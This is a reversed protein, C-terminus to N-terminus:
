GLLARAIGLQLYPSISKVCAGRRVAIAHEDETLFAEDHSLRFAVKVTALELLVRTARQFRKGLRHWLVDDGVWHVGGVHTSVKSIRVRHFSLM